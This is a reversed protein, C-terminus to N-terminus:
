QTFSKVGEAIDGDLSNCNHLKDVAEIPIRSSIKHCSEIGESM